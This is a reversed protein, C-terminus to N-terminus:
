QQPTTTHEDIYNMLERLTFDKGLKEELKEYTVEGGFETILNQISAEDMASVKNVFANIEEEKVDGVFNVMREVTVEGGVFQEITDLDMMNGTSEIVMQNITERGDIEEGMLTGFDEMITYVDTKVFYMYASVWITTSVVLSIVTLVIGAIVKGKPKIDAKKTLYIIGFILSLLGFVYNVLFLTTIFAFIGFVLCATAFGKKAKKPEQPVAQEQVPVEGEPAEYVPQEEVVEEVVEETTVDEYYREESM